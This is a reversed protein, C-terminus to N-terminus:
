PNPPHVFQAMFQVSRGGFEPPPKPLPTSARIAREATMDLLANGSSKEKQIATIVGSSTIVFSYLIEIRLSPDVPRIWNSSIRAEVARAYYSDGFGGTGLGLKVGVGGGAGGGSGGAAGGQGGAGPQPATPIVNAQPAPRKEEAAKPEPAKPTKKPAVTDPLAVEAPKPQEPAPTDAPLAPPQPALAPKVMGAGGGLDDVVGVTYSAGGTGGGEGTGLVIPARSPLIYPVLLFFGVTVVHLVASLAFSGAYREELLPIDLLRARAGSM